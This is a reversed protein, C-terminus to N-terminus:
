SPWCPVLSLAAFGFLKILLLFYHASQMIVPMIRGHASLGEPEERYKCVMNKLTYPPTPHAFNRMCSHQSRKSTALSARQLILALRPLVVM